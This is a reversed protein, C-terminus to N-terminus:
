SILFKKKMIGPTACVYFKLFIKKKYLYFKKQANCFGKIEEVALTLQSTLFEINFGEVLVGKRYSEQSFIWLGLLIFSM